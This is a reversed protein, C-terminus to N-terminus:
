YVANLVLRLKMYMVNENLWRGLVKCKFESIIDYEKITRAETTLKSLKYKCENIRSKCIPFVLCTKCPIDSM